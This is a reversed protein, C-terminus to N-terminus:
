TWWAVGFWILMIAAIIIKAFTGAVVGITAGVGARMSSNVTARGILHGIVAGVFPGLLIGILGFFLGLLLGLTAGLIALRGAGFRRAGEATAIFDILVSAVALIGLWFLTWFGVSNFGDLWAMLVLGLWMLPVGPLIPLIIGSLGLLVLSIAFVWGPYIMWQWLDSNM